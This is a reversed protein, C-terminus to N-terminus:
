EVIDKQAELKLFKLKTQLNQLTQYGQLLTVQVELIEVVNRQFLNVMM